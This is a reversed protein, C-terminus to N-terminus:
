IKNQEKHIELMYILRCVNVAMLDKLTVWVAM